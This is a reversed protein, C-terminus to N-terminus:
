LLFPVVRRTRRAYAAYEPYTALLLREELRMRIALGATLAAALVAAQASRHVAVGSWVFWLIAAYIPHRLYRYPGSTVLGGATPGAGAHFSRRGFTIRAWIMLLVAAGQLALSAPGTGFLQHTLALALIAAVAILFGLISQARAAGAGSPRAPAPASADQLRRLRTTLVVGAVFAGGIMSGGLRVHGADIRDLGQFLLTLITLSVGAVALRQSGTM